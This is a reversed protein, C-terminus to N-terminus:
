DDKPGDPHRNWTQMKSSDRGQYEEAKMEAVFRLSVFESLRCRLRGEEDVPLDLAAVMETVKFLAAETLSVWTKFDKGGHKGAEPHVVIDNDGDLCRGTLCFDITVMPRGSKSTERKAQTIRSEWKGDPVLFKSDADNLGEVVLLDESDDDDDAPASAFLKSTM